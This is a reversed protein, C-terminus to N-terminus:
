RAGRGEPTEFLRLGQISWAPANETTATQTMRIFRARAPRFTIVTAPGSGQGSAIPASWTRGDASVQVDYGRPYTGVAPPNGRGGGQAPSNFQIESLTLPAPLEVQFWMGAQQPARTSWGAFNLGQAAEPANHSSTVKWTGDPVLARPISAELEEVTWPAKRGATAARVRAVDAPTVLWGGGGSSSRV